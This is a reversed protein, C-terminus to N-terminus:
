YLEADVFLGDSVEMSVYPGIMFGSGNISSFDDEDVMFDGHLAVGLLLGKDVLYDAGVSVMAFRGWSKQAGDNRLHLTLSGDIWANFRTDVTGMALAEAASGAATWAALQATSSAFNLAVSNGNPVINITGPGSGFRNGLSPRNISSALSAARTNVFGGVRQEVRETVFAEDKIHMFTIKASSTGAPGTLTFPVTSTGAFYPSPTFHLLYRGGSAELRATGAEAPSVAGISAATFDGITGATLDIPAPTTGPAITVTQDLADSSASVTVSVTATGSTGGPGTVTYTFSDPGSYGANPVYTIALGSATATGHSPSSAITAATAVGTVVAYASTGASNFPVPMPFNGATPGDLVEFTVLRPFSFEGTPAQSVIKFNYTGAALAPSFDFNWGGGSASSTRDLEVDNGNRLIVTHNPDAMGTLASIPGLQGSGPATVVPTAPPAHPAVSVLISTSITAADADVATALIPVAGRAGDLASSPLTLSWTGDPQVLVFMYTIGNWVVTVNAGAQVNVTTGAIAFPRGDPVTAGYVPNTISISSQAWAGQALILWVLMTALLSMIAKALALVRRLQGAVTWNMDREAM